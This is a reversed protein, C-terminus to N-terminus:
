PDFDSDDPSAVLTVGADLELTTLDRLHLTGSLYDGPPFQVVRGLAAANDIAAQIARTDKTKRDGRAGHDRVSVPASAASAIGPPRSLAWPIGLAGAWLFARRSDNM